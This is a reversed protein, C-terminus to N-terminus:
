ERLRQQDFMLEDNEVTATSPRGIECSPIPKQKAKGTEEHCWCAHGLVRHDYARGGQEPKVLGERLSFVNPQRLGCSVFAQAMPGECSSM